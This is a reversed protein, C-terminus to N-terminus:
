NILSAQDESIFNNIVQCGYDLFKKEDFDSLFVTNNLDKINSKFFKSQFYRLSSRVM